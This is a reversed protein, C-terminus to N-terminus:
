YKVCFVLLGLKNRIKESKKAPMSRAPMLSNLQNFILGRRDEGWKLNLWQEEDGAGRRSGVNFSDCLYKWVNMVTLLSCMWFHFTRTTFLFGPNRQFLPPDVESANVDKSSSMEWLWSSTLTFFKGFLSAAFTCLLGFLIWLIHCCLSCVQTWRPLWSSWQRSFIRWVWTNGPKHNITSQNSCNIDLFAM